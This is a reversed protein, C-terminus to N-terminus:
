INTRLRPFRDALDALRAKSWGLVRAPEVATASVPYTPHGLLVIGAYPDGPGIFRAIVDKGDATLKSLKLHGVVVIYFTTAPEGETALVQKAQLNKAVASSLIDQRARENLGDLIRPHVPRHYLSM